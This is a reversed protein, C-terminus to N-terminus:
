MSTEKAKDWLTELSMLCHIGANLWCTQGENGLGPAQGECSNAKTEYLAWQSTHEVWDFETAAFGVANEVFVQTSQSDDIKFWDHGRKVVAKWHGGLKNSLAISKLYYTTDNITGQFPIMLWKRDREDSAANQLNFLLIPAKVFTHVEKRNVSDPPFVHRTNGTENYWSQLKENSTSVHSGNTAFMSFIDAYYVDSTVAFGAHWPLSVDVDPRKGEVLTATEGTTSWTDGKKTATQVTVQEWSDTFTVKASCFLKSFARSSPAVVGTRLDFVLDLFQVMPVLCRQILEAQDGLRYKWFTLINVCQEVLNENRPLQKTPLESIYNIVGDKIRPTFLTAHCSIGDDSKLWSTRIQSLAQYAAIIASENPAESGSRTPSIVRTDIAFLVQYFSRAIEGDPPNEKFLPTWANIFDSITNDAAQVDLFLSTVNQWKQLAATVFSNIYTNARIAEKRKDKDAFVPFLVKIHETVFAELHTEDVIAALIIDCADNVEFIWSEFVINGANTISHSSAAAGGGGLPKLYPILPDFITRVTNSESSANGIAHSWEDVFYGRRGLDKPNIFYTEPKKLVQVAIDAWEKLRINVESSLSTHSTNLLELKEKDSFKLSHKDADGAKSTPWVWWIWDDDKTTNKLDNEIKQKNDSFITMWKVINSEQQQQQVYPAVDKILIIDKSFPPTDCLATAAIYGQYAIASHKGCYGDLTYDGKNGNGPMSHPDWANVFLINDTTEDAWAQPIRGLCRTYTRGVATSLKQYFEKDEENKTGISYLEGTYHCSAIARAVAQAVIEAYRGYVNTPLNTKFASGGLYCMAVKELELDKACTFVLRMVRFYYKELEGTRNGVVFYEFDPQRKDDFAFGVANFVHRWEGQFMEDESTVPTHTYLAYNPPLKGGSTKWMNTYGSTVKSRPNVTDFGINVCQRDRMCMKVDEANDDRHYYVAISGQLNTGSTLWNCDEMPWKPPAYQSDYQDYFTKFLQTIHAEPQQVPHPQPLQNGRVLANPQQNQVQVQLAQLTRWAQQNNQELQKTYEQRMAAIRQSLQSTLHSTLNHQFSNVDHQVKQLVADYKAQQERVNEADQQQRQLEHEANHQLQQHGHDAPQSEAKSQDLDVFFVPRLVDCTVGTVTIVNHSSDHTQTVHKYHQDSWIPDLLVNPIPTSKTEARGTQLTTWMEAANLNHLTAFNVNPLLHSSNPITTVPVNDWRKLQETSDTVGQQLMFTRIDELPAYKSLTNSTWMYRSLLGIHHVSQDPFIPISTMPYQTAKKDKESVSTDYDTYKFHIGCDCHFLGMDLAVEVMTGTRICFPSLSLQEVTNAHKQHTYTKAYNGTATILNPPLQKGNLRIEYLESSYDFGRENNCDVSVPFVHAMDYNGNPIWHNYEESSLDISHCQKRRSDYFVVSEPNAKAIRTLSKSQFYQCFTYVMLGLFPIHFPPCHSDVHKQRHEKINTDNVADIYMADMQQQLNCVHDAIDKVLTIIAEDNFPCLVHDVNGYLMFWTYDLLLWGMETWPQKKQSFLKYDMEILRQALEIRTTTREEIMKTQQRQLQTTMQYIQKGADTEPGEITCFMQKFPTPTYENGQTLTDASTSVLAPYPITFEMKELKGDTLKFPQVKAPKHIPAVTTTSLKVFSRTTGDGTSEFKEVYYEYSSRTKVVWRTAWQLTIRCDFDANAVAYTINSCHELIKNVAEIIADILSDESALLDDIKVKLTRERSLCDRFPDERIANQCGYRMAYLLLFTTATTVVDKNISDRDSVTGTAQDKTIIEPMSCQLM